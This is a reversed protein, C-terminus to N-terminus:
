MSSVEDGHDLRVIERALVARLQRQRPQVQAHLWALDKAKETRVTRALGGRDLDERPHNARCAARRAHSAEIDDFLRELNAAMENFSRALEALEAAGGEPARAGMDGAALASTAQRIRDLSDAISRALFLAALVAASASAVAVALIKVDDGMHFMVWGSLLVVLLPLLVFMLVGSVRHLISVIGAIPLRYGPLDRLANINRYQPRKKALETM